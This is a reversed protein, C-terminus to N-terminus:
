SFKKHLFVLSGFLLAGSVLLTILVSLIFGLGVTFGAVLYGVFACVAVVCAYPIQSSVHNIHDCEAGTSSLITTDSIPSCHDGFVSGALTAAIAMVLFEPAAEICITAVIPILIGFTGWATGMSFSLFAATAFVIAPIIAMPISSSKVIEGVYVGTGLLDRCIGSITWAFTLIAFAPAMSKIGEVISEMFEKFSLVKRPIYLLFTVILAGFGGYVLAVSADTEGFAQGITMGGEFYGGVQLMALVSFIILSIIPILLDFVKGKGNKSGEDVEKVPKASNYKAMPGFDLKTACLTVVMILTLIAYLNYPISAIFVSMPDAIGSDSIQSIIAAAWSSVPAIICIPAATADIIYALKERSIGHKDTVPKMVTGVTLCNFYDDIFILSGLLSTSLMSRFLM